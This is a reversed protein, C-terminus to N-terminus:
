SHCSFFMLPFGPDGDAHQEEEKDAQL